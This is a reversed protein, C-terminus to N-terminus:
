WFKHVTIKINAQCQLCIILNFTDQTAAMVHLNPAAIHYEMDTHQGLLVHHAYRHMSLLPTLRIGYGCLRIIYAKPIKDWPLIWLKAEFVTLLRFAVRLIFKRKCCVKYINLGMTHQVYGCWKEWWGIRTLIDKTRKRRHRRVMVLLANQM